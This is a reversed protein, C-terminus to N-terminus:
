GMLVHLTTRVHGAPVTTLIPRVNVIPSAQVAHVSTITAMITHCVSGTHDVTSM